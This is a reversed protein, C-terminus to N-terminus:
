YGVLANWWKLAIGDGAAPMQAKWDYTAIEEDQGSTPKKRKTIICDKMTASFFYDEATVILEAADCEFALERSMVDAGYTTAAGAGLHYEDITAVDYIYDFSGTVEMGTFKAYRPERSGHTDQHKTKRKVTMKFNHMKLDQASAGAAGIMIKQDADTSMFVKTTSFTPTQLAELDYSQGHATMECMVYGDKPITITMEEIIASTVKEQAAALDGSFCLSVPKNATKPVADHEHDDTHATTSISDAGMLSEFLMGPDDSTLPFSFKAGANVVGGRANTEMYYGVNQSFKTGNDLDIVEYKEVPIYKTPAASTGYVADDGIGLARTM